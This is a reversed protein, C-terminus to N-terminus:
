EKAEKSFLRNTVSGIAKKGGEVVANAALDKAYEIYGDIREIKEQAAELRKEAQAVQEKLKTIEAARQELEREFRAGTAL